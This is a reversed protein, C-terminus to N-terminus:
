PLRIALSDLRHIHHREVRTQDRQDFYEAGVDTYHKKDRWLQSLIVLVKHCLAM